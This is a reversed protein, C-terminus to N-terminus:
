GLMEVFAEIRTQQQGISRLTCDGELALWPLGAQKLAQGIPPLRSLYPDCFKAIHMVVGKAGSTGARLAIDDVLGSIGTRALTRACAERTLLARALAPVPAEEPSVEIEQFLRQSTCFDDGVVRAGCLELLEFVAPQPCVNGLVYVPVGSSQAHGGSEALFQQVELTAQAANMTTIRNLFEQVAASGGEIRGQNRVLFLRKAENALLNYDDIARRLNGAGGPRGGWDVLTQALSQLQATLYGVASPEAVVPLDVLTVPLEPVFAKIADALRRMADCSNMLVLGALEQSLGALLRDLVLGVHPCINDHLFQGSFEPAEELPLVRHPTFGAAELLPLPTYACTYGIAPKTTM